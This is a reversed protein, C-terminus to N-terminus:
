VRELWLSSEPAGNWPLDRLGPREAAGLRTLAYRSAFLPRYAGSLLWPALGNQESYGRWDWDQPYPDPLFVDHVHVRVGTALRPLVRNLILDVDTGPMLLHSSDFFAVDGAELADFLRLHKLSLIEREWEVPLDLLRARPAPDICVHRAQAGADKLARAVFRTSHGSGVEVIRKPPTSRILAYASAGDTRPFWDQTWRPEPPEGGFGALAEAFRDVDDMSARMTAAAAEFVAEVEAYVPAAAPVSDAYRYPVFFGQPRGGFLTALGM